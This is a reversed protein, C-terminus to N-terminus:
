RIVKLAKQYDCVRFSLAMFFNSRNIRRSSGSHLLNKLFYRLMSNFTIPEQSRDELVKVDDFITRRFFVPCRQKVCKSTLFETEIKIVVCFPKVDNHSIVFEKLQFSRRLRPEPTGM